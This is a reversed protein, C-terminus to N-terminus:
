GSQTSTYLISNATILTNESNMLEHLINVKNRITNEKQIYEWIYLAKEKISYEEKSLIDKIHNNM